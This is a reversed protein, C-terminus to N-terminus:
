PADFRYEPKLVFSLFHWAVQSLPVPFGLDDNIGIIPLM